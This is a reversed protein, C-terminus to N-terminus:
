IVPCTRKQPYVLDLVACVADAWVGIEDSAGQAGSERGIVIELSSTGKPVEATFSPFSRQVLERLLTLEAPQARIGDCCVHLRLRAETSFAWLTTVEDLFHPMGGDDDAYALATSVVRRLEPSAITHSM